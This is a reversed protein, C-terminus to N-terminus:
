KSGSLSFNYGLRIGFLEGNSTANNSRQYRGSLEVHKNFVYGASAAWTVLGETENWFDGDETYKYTLNGFGFQPEVFFGNFNHRYGIMLPVFSLKGSWGFGSGIEKFTSYGGTFTIQGAKGVGFLGKAYVGMGTKFANGFVGMPFSLDAGAGIANNGKQAFSSATVIVALLIMNIKKM